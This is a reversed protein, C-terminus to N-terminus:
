IHGEAKIEETFQVSAQKILKALAKATKQPVAQQNKFAIQLNAIGTFQTAEEGVWDCIKDLTAIDPVHGNEVRSLTSPSIGIERAAARVGMNGRKTALLKALEKIEM